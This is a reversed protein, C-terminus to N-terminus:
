LSARPAILRLRERFVDPQHVSLMVAYNETTPIYIVQRPDTVYLLAKEGNRLRFWGAAYGPLGTGFTRRVPQYQPENRLNLSRAAGGMLSSAPLLRGYLDGNLRLGASSIEFNAKQSAYASNGLIVAVGLIILIAPLILWLPKCGAPIIPFSQSM